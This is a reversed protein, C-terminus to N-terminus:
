EEEAITSKLVLSKLTFVGSVVVNEGERLGSLVETKGLASRGIVVPHLEFDNDPHHVFVVPKGNIEAVASRPVILPPEGKGAEGASVRATGFLGLRLLDRRNELPVRAVVTRAVPDIQRGLIAITGNFRENPYANLEVEVAAGVRVRALDSEFVRALFWVQDLDAITAIPQDPDIAQGIVANRAVVTGRLPARLELSSGGGAAGAGIARLREAAARAEAELAAAHAKADALEQASALGKNALASLRDANARAAVAKAGASALASRRDALDPVRLIALLDNAKVAKGEAFTVREILGAIPTTVRATRDPDAAIEGPLDIVIALAERAAPATKIKAAAIVEASVKVRKPLEEHEPEDKHDDRHKDKHEAAGTAEKEHERPTCAFLFAAFFLM